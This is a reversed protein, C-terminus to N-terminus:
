FGRGWTGWSVHYLPEADLMGLNPTVLIVAWKNGLSTNESQMEM